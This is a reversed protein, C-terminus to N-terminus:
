ISVLMNQLFYYLITHTVNKMQLSFFGQMGLKKTDTTTLEIGISFLPHDLLLLITLSIHSFIELRRFSTLLFKLKM